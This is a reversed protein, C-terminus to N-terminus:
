DNAIANQEMERQRLQEERETLEQEWTSYKNILTEEYNLMNPTKANSAIVFMIAVMILLLVNLLVSLRYKQKLTDKKKIPKIRKRAPNATERITRSFYNDLPIPPVEETVEEHEQLFAHLKELYRIGVPTQFTKEELAKKYIALVSEARNYNLRQEIYDIKQAELRALRADEETKFMYGNVTLGQQEKM